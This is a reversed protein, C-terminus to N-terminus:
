NTKFTWIGVICMVKYQLCTILKNNFIRYETDISKDYFSFFIRILTKHFYNFFSASQTFILCVKIKFTINM